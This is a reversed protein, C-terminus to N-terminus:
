PTGDKNGNVRISLLRGSHVAGPWDSRAPPTATHCIADVRQRFQIAISAAGGALLLGKASSPLATREISDALHALEHRAIVKEVAIRIRNYNPETIM